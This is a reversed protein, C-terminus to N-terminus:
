RDDMVFFYLLFFIFNPSASNKVIGPKQAVIFTPYLIRAGPAIGRKLTDTKPTKEKDLEYIDM